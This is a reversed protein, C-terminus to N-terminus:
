QTNPNPPEVEQRDIKMFTHRQRQTIEPAHHVM